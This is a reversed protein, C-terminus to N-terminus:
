RDFILKHAKKKINQLGKDSWRDIIAQNIKQFDVTQGSLHTNMALAYTVAVDKQTMRPNDLEQLIQKEPFTLILPMKEKEIKHASEM